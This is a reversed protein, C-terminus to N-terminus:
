LHPTIFNNDSEFYHNSAEYRQEHIIYTLEEAYEMPAVDSASSSRPSDGSVGWCKRFSSRFSTLRFRLSSISLTSLQSLITSLIFSIVLVIFLFNIIVVDFCLIIVNILSLKDIRKHTMIRMICVDNDKDWLHEFDRRLRRVHVWISCIVKWIIDRM